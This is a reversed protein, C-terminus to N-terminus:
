WIMFLVFTMCQPSDKMLNITDEDEEPTIPAANLVVSLLNVQVCNTCNSSELKSM